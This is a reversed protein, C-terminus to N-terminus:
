EVPTFQLTFAIDTGAYNHDYYVPVTMRSGYESIEGDKLTMFSYTAFPKRQFTINRGNQSYSETVSFTRGNSLDCKLIYIGDSFKLEYSDAGDVALWRSNNVDSLVRDTLSEEDNSCAMFSMLVTVCIMMLNLLKRM